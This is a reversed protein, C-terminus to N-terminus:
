HGKPEETKGTAGNMSPHTQANLLADELDKRSKFYYVIGVTIAAIGVLGAIVEVPGTTPLAAPACEGNVRVTATDQRNGNNTEVSATNTLVACPEGDITASLYLFSNSGAAYNGMNVGQNNISDDLKKGNPFGTNILETEGKIYNVGQPLVDKFVVNKQETTGTNKYSLRYEVKDGKNVSISDKWEKTGVPRVDKAFTFGPADAVLTYTIFGSYEDCGPLTGNLAEYGIPSGGATFLSDSIPKGNVAGNSTVKASGKIYRLAIDATTSNTFDIHDYVSTPQANTAGVYSMAKINSQGSRVIAPIETRAYAGKAIGTGGANFSSSANNHYLIVVEYQKGAQLNAVDTYKEGSAIDRIRMFNREDGWKPNNTISNFTVYSAPSQQTFTPRDPGWAFAVAPLLAASAVLISFSAVPRTTVKTILTQLTTRM